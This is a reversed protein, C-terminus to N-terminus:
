DCRLQETCGGCLGAGNLEAHPASACLACPKRDENDAPFLRDILELARDIHRSPRTEAV